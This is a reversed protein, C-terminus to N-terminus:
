SSSVVLAPLFIRMRGTQFHTSSFYANVAFLDKQSIDRLKTLQYDSGFLIELDVQALHFHRNPVGVPITLPM